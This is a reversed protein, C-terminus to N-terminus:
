EILKGITVAMIVIAVFLCTVVIATIDRTIRDREAQKAPDERFM